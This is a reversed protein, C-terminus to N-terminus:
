KEQKNKRKEFLISVSTLILVMAILVMFYVIRNREEKGEEKNKEIQEQNEKSQEQENSTKQM